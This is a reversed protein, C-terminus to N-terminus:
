VLGAYVSASYVFYIGDSLPEDGTFHIIDGPEVKSTDKVFKQDGFHYGLYVVTDKINNIQITIDYGEAARSFNRVGLTLCIAIVSIFAFLSKKSM